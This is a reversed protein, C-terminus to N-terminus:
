LAKRIREYAAKLDSGLQKVTSGMEGATRDLEAKERFTKWRKELEVWEDQAEMSGLHIKLKIEDRVRKVDDTLKQLDAMITDKRVGGQQAKAFRGLYFPLLAVTLRQNLPLSAAALDKANVPTM